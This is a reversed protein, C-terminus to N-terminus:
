HSSSFRFCLNVIQALFIDLTLQVSEMASFQITYSAMAHSALLLALAQCHRSVKVAEKM